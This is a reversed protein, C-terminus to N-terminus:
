TELDLNFFFFDAEANNIESIDDHSDVSTGGGAKRYDIQIHHIVDILIAEKQTFYPSHSSFLLQDFHKPMLAKLFLLLEKQYLPSLNLELEEIIVIRCSSMSIKALIYLFQQIGTGYNKLPLRGNENKLMIEIEEGFRSFGIENEKKYPFSNINSKLKEKAETSFEFNGLFDSIELFSNYKEANISLDFLSNKFDEIRFSTSGDKMERRFNRDSDIFLVLNNLLRLISEGLESTLSTKEFGEFFYDIRDDNKFFPKRNLIGETVQLTVIESESGNQIEGLLELVTNDDGLFGNEALNETEPLSTNSVELTIHFTIPSSKVNNTFLYPEGLINGSWFDTEQTLTNSTSKFSEEEESPAVKIRTGEMKKSFLLTLFKFINSKGSNNYGYFLNVNGFREIETNILSKFNSVTLKTIRIM